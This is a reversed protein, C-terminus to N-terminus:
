VLASLGVYLGVLPGLTVAALLGISPIAFLALTAIDAFGARKPSADLGLRARVTAVDEPLLTDVTVHEYLNKTARGRAWAALVRGPAIVVGIALAFVNLLFAVPVRLCGSAIEWAGIEAEGRLDTNYGTVIHHLDHVRLARRRANSNPIKITFRWIKLPVWVLSEGGDEGFGNARYYDARADGLTTTM